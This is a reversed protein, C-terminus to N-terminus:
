LRKLAEKIIEEVKISEKDKIISPMIKNINSKAFGLMILANTAEEVVSNDVKGKLISTTDVGGGKVIKDKLELIIRQASKIGIGKISKIKNVDEGIIANRIEEDTLSSLMMRATGAGVGSVSILLKFLERENKSAFGYFQEDDERLYHYLYVTADTKGQLSEFTQLSILINFGFGGCEIVTETPSLEILSGKIYDYMLINKELCNVNGHPM